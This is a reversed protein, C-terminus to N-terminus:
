ALELQTATLNDREGIIQAVLDALTRPMAACLAASAADREALERGSIEGSM